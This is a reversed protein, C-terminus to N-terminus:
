GNTFTSYLYQAGFLTMCNQQTPLEKIKKSKRQNEKIKKSKEKIKVEQKKAERWFIDSIRIIKGKEEKKAESEQFFGALTTGTKSVFNQQSIM